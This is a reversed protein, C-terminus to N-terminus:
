AARRRRGARRWTGITALTQELAILREARQVLEAEIDPDIPSGAELRAISGTISLVAEAGDDLEYRIRLAGDRHDADLPRM